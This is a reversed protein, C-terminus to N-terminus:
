VQAGGSVSVGAVTQAEVTINIVDGAVEAFARTVRDIRPDQEVSSKSASAGVLRKTPGNVIGILRRVESGYEPHYILDGRDSEVRNRIAQKMNARGAVLTFDKGDTLIEGRGSLEVDIGFVAEPDASASTFRTPAPVKLSTGTLLVGPRVQATDDTLFPPVLNNYSIIEPWRSADGLERAAVRQLSDGVNTEVFRFGVLPRDFQTAM